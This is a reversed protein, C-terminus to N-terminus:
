YVEVPNHLLAVEAEGYWALHTTTHNSILHHHQAAFRGFILYHAATRATRAMMESHPMNLQIQHYIERRLWCERELQTRRCPDALLDTAVRHELQGIDPILGTFRVVNWGDAAVERRTAEISGDVLELFQARSVKCSRCIEEDDAEQDALLIVVQAQPLCAVVRRLFVIHQQTLLSVGGRLGGFVYRGDQHAYDPCSPALITPALNTHILSQGLRQVARRLQSAPGCIEILGPLREVVQRAAEDQQIRRGAQLIGRRTRRWDFQGHM